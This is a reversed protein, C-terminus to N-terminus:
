LFWFQKLLISIDKNAIYMYIWVLNSLSLVPGFQGSQSSQVLCPWEPPFWEAHPPKQNGLANCSTGTPASPTEQILLEWAVTCSSSGPRRWQNLLAANRWVSYQTESSLTDGHETHHGSSHPECCVGGDLCDMVRAKRILQWQGWQMLQHEPPVPETWGM